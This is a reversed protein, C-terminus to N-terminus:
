EALWRPLGLLWMFDVRTWKGSHRRQEQRVPKAANRWITTVMNKLILAPSDVKYDQLWGKDDRLLIVFSETGKGDSFETEYKREYIWGLPRASVRWGAQQSNEVTGLKRRVAELYSLMDAETTDRRFDDTAAIYIEHFQGTNFQNHFQTVTQDSMEPGDIVRSDGPRM